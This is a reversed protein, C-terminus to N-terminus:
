RGRRRNQHAHAPRRGMFRASSQAGPGSLKRLASLPWTTFVGHVPLDMDQIEPMMTLRIPTLFIRETAKGIWADEAPSDGVITAPYIADKRHTIATVRFAPYYDPLSYYGPMTASPAKWYSPSRPTWMAEVVIDADAPVEIPQTVCSVLPVPRGRLFGALIYEDVGEPLPATAAYAYM